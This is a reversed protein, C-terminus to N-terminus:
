QPPLGMRRRQVQVAQPPYEILRGDSTVGGGADVLRRAFEHLQDSVASSQVSLTWRVCGNPFRLCAAVEKPYEALLRNLLDADIPRAPKQALPWLEAAPDFHGVLTYHVWSM